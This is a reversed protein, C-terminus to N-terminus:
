EVEVYIEVPIGYFDIDLNKNFISRYSSYLLPYLGDPCTLSSSDAILHIDLDSDKTYNYSCNSGVLRIDKLEFKIGDQSLSEIFSNAIELIKDHVEKKLSGNGNWLKPNLEDHKEITEDLVDSTTEFNDQNKFEKLKQVHSVRGKCITNDTKVGPADLNENINVGNCEIVVDWGALDEKIDKAIYKRNCVIRELSNCGSFQPFELFAVSDPLILEKLAYCEGFAEPRIIRCNNSLIINQLSACDYFAGEGIYIVGNDMSVTKLRRCDAFCNDPITDINLPLKVSQLNACNLFTESGLHMVSDPIYMNKLNGCNSFARTAIHQLGDPLLITEFYRQGQFAETDIVKVYYPVEVRLVGVWDIFPNVDLLTERSPSLVFLFPGFIDDFLARSFLPKLVKFFRLAKKFDHKVAFFEAIEKEKGEAVKVIEGDASIDFDDGFTDVFADILDGEPTNAEETLFLRERLKEKQKEIM